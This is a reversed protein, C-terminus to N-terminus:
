GATAGDEDSPSSSFRGPGGPGGDEATANRRSGPTDEDARTSPRTSPRTSTATRSTSTSSTPGDARTSRTPRPRATTAPAGRTARPAAVSSPAVDARAADEDGAKELLSTGATPTTGGGTVPDPGVPTQEAPVEPIEPLAIEQGTRQAELGLAIGVGGVVVAAAMAAAAPVSSLGRRPRRGTPNLVRAMEDARARM